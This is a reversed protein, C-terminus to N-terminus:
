LIATMTVSGDGHDTRLMLPNRSARPKIEQWARMFEAPPEMDKDLMASTCRLDEDQETPISFSALFAIKNAKCVEIIKAMLPSIQEDYIQEKNVTAGILIVLKWAYLM